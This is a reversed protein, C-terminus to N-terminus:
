PQGDKVLANAARSKRLIEWRPDDPAATESWHAPKPKDAEADLDAALTRSMVRGSRRVFGCRQLLREATERRQDITEQPITKIREAIEAERNPPAPRLALDRSRHLEHRIRACVQRLAAPTPKRDQERRWEDIASRVVACPFEELDLVFTAVLRTRADSREPFWIDLLEGLARVRWGQDASPALAANIEPV